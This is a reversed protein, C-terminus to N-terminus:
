LNYYLLYIRVEKRENKLKECRKQEEALRDGAEKVESRAERILDQSQELSVSLGDREGKFYLIVHYMQFLITTNQTSSVLFCFKLFFIM